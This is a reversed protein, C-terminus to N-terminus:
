NVSHFKNGSIYRNVTESLEVIDFPKSIFADAGAELAIRDITSLASILIVPIDNTAPDSKLKRCLNSGLETGLWEDMLILDPKIGKIDQLVAGSSSLITIHGDGELVLSIINLIEKDDEIVLVKKYM